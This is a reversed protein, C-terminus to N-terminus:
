VQQPAPPAPAAHQSESAEHQKSKLPAAVQQLEPWLQQAPVQQEALWCHQMPSWPRTADHQPGAGSLKQQPPVQQAGGAVKQQPLVQQAGGAM